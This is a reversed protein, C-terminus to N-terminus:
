RQGKAHHELCGEDDSQDYVEFNDVDMANGDYDAKMEVYRLIMEKVEEYQDSDSVQQSLCEAVDSPVMKVLFVM